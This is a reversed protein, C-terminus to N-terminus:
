PHSVMDQSMAMQRGSVHATPTLMEDGYLSIENEDLGFEFSPIQLLSAKSLAYDACKKYLAITTIM